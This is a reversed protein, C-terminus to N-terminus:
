RFDIEARFSFEKETFQYKELLEPGCSHSGIGAQRYDLCLVAHPERRLKKRHKCETLQEQSYRSLNFSSGEPMTIHLAPLRHKRSEILLERCDYRSGSEQPMIYDCPLDEIGARFLGRYSSRHKDIYSENPGYAFYRVNKYAKPLFLRLGFRPLVPFHPDVKAKTEVTVKGEPAFHWFTDMRVAPQMSPAGLSESVKIDLSGDENAAHRIEYIKGTCQDLRAADWQRRIYMDNDTPARWVNWGGCGALLDKEGILLSEPQGKIKNFSVAFDANGFRLYVPSDEEIELAGAEADLVPEPESFVDEDAEQLVIQDRGAIRGDTKDISEVLVYCFSHPRLADCSFCIEKEEGAALGEATLVESKIEDENEFQRIRLYAADDLALFDLYNKVRIKLTDGEKQWDEVRM